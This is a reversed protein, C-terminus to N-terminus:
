HGDAGQQSPAQEGERHQQPAPGPQSSAGQAHDDAASRTDSPIQAHENSGARAKDQRQAAPPQRPEIPSQREPRTTEGSGSISGNSSDGKAAGTSAASTTAAKTSVGPTSDGSGGCGLVLLSVAAAVCLIAIRRRSPSRTWCSLVGHM